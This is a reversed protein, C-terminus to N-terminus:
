QVVGKLRVPLAKGGVAIQLKEDFPGAPIRDLRPTVELFLEQGDKQWVQKVEFHDENYLVQDVKLQPACARRVMISRTLSASGKRLGGFYLQHPRVTFPGRVDVLVFLSQKKSGPIKLYIPGAFQMAETAIAKLILKYSKGGPLREVKASLYNGMPNDVGTILLPKGDPDTLTAETVLNEGLCGKVELRRGKDVKIRSVTEGILVLTVFPQSPDNSSVVATKRFAGHIGSTDLKVLVKGKSGPTTVKQFDAM